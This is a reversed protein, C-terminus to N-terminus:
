DEKKGRLLDRLKRPISTLVRGTRFSVSNRMDNFEHELDAIRRELAGIKQKDVGALVISCYGDPNNMILQIRGWQFDDFVSRDLEGLQDARKFEQSFRYIYEKRYVESIRYVTNMYNGYKKYWYIYKFREWIEPYQVLIERIYDYEVNMCYVKNPNSVSSNPNDRRNM